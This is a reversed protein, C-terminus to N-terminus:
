VQDRPRKTVKLYIHHLGELEDIKVEVYTENQRSDFELKAKGWQVQAEIQFRRNAGGKPYNLIM